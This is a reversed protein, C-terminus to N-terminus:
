QELVVLQYSALPGSHPHWNVQCELETKEVKKAVVRMKEQGFM